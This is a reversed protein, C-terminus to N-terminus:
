NMSALDDLLMEGTLTHALGLEIGQQTFLAQMMDVLNLSRDELGISSQYIVLFAGAARQVIPGTDGAVLPPRFRAM